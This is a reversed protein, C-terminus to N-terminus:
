SHRSPEKESDFSNEIGTIDEIPVPLLTFGVINSTASIDLVEKITMISFKTLNEIKVRM